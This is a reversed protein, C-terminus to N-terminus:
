SSALWFGLRAAFVSVAVLCLLWGSRRGYRGAALGYVAGVLAVPPVILGAATLIWGTRLLKRAM